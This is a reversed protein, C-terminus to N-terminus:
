VAMPSWSEAPAGVERSSRSRRRSLSEASL